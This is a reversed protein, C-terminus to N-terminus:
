VMYTLIFSELCADCLRLVKCDYSVLIYSMLILCHILWTYMCTFYCEHKDVSLGAPMYVVVPEVPLEECM